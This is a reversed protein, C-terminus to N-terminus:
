RPSLRVGCVLMLFSANLLLAKNAPTATMLVSQFLNDDLKKCLAHQSLPSFLVSEVTIAETPSVLANFKLFAGFGSSSLPHSSPLM